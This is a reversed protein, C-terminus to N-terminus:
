LLFMKLDTLKLQRRSIKWCLKQESADYGNKMNFSKVKEGRKPFLFVNAIRIEGDQKRERPKVIEKPRHPSVHMANEVLSICNLVLEMEETDLLVLPRVCPGLGETIKWDKQTLGNAFSLTIPMM